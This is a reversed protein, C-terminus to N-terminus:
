TFSMVDSVRIAEMLSKKDCTLMSKDMQLADLILPVLFPPAVSMDLLYFFPCKVLVKICMSTLQLTLCDLNYQLACYNAILILLKILNDGFLSAEKLEM